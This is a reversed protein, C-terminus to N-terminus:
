TSTYTADTIAKDDSYFISNNEQSILYDDKKLM